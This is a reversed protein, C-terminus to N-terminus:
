NRVRVKGEQTDQAPTVVPIPGDAANEVTQGWAPPRGSLGDLVTAPNVVLGLKDMYPTKILLDYLPKEAGESQQITDFVKSYGAAHDGVAQGMMSDTPYTYGGTQWMGYQRKFEEGYSELFTDLRATPPAAQGNKAAEHAEHIEKLLALEMEEPEPSLFALMRVSPDHQNAETVTKTPDYVCIREVGDVIDLHLYYLPECVTGGGPIVAGHNANGEPVDFYVGLSQLWGEQV